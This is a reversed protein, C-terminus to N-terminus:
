YDWDEDLYVNGPAQGAAQYCRFFEMKSCGEFRVGITKVTSAANERVCQILVVSAELIVMLEGPIWRINPFPLLRCYIRGSGKPYVVARLNEIDEFCLSITGDKHPVLNSLHRGILTAPNVGEGDFPMLKYFSGSADNWVWGNAIDDQHAAIVRQQLEARTGEIPFQRHKLEQKLRAVTWVAYGDSLAPTESNRPAQSNTLTDDITSYVSSPTASIPRAPEDELVTTLRKKGPQYKM